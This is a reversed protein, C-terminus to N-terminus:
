TSFSKSLPTKTFNGLLLLWKQLDTTKDVSGMKAEYNALIDLFQNMIYSFFAVGCLM